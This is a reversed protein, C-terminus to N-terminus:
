KAPEEKPPVVVDVHSPVVQVLTIGPPMSVEVRQRLDVASEIESLDVRVHIERDTLADVLEPRGEVTVEVFEPHVRFARVDSALSFVGVPLGSFTRTKWNQLSHITMTPDDRFSNVTLWIVIALGLSFIKWGTDKTLFDRM